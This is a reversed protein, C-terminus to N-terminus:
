LVGESLAVSDKGKRELIITVPGDNILSIKMDAGFVGTKVMIGMGEIMTVMENLLREAREPTEALHFSPRTGKRLEGCITFNSVILIEGRVDKLSRNLKGAEDPFIRLNVLKEAFWKLVGEDDGKEVCLLVLLGRGIQAVIEDDVIM